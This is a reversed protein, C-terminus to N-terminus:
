CMVGACGGPVDRQRKKQKNKVNACGLSGFSAMLSVSSSVPESRVSAGSPSTAFSRM